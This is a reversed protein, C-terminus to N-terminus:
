NNRLKGRLAISNNISTSTLYPAAEGKLFFISKYFSMYIQLYHVRCGWLPSRVTQSILLYDIFELCTNQPTALLKKADAWGSAICLRMMLKNINKHIKGLYFFSFLLLFRHMTKMHACRSLNYLFFVIEEENELQRNMYDCFDKKLCRCSEIRRERCNNRRSGPPSGHSDYFPTAPRLVLDTLSIVMIVPSALYRYNSHVAVNRIRRM